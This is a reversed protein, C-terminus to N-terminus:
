CGGHKLMHHLYRNPVEPAKGLTFEPPRRDVPLELREARATRADMKRQRAATDADKVVCASAVRRAPGGCAPCDRDNDAESWSRLLEFSRGCHKCAYDYIPM